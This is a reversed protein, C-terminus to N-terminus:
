DKSLEPDDSPQLTFGEDRWAKMGGEMPRAEYGRDRLASVAEACQEVDDGVVVVPRDEVLDDIRAELQDGAAHPVGPVHGELWAERDRVDIGQAESAAIAERAEEVTITDQGSAEM